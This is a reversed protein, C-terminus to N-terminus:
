AACLCGITHRGDGLYEFRHCVPRRGLAVLRRELPQLPVPSREPHEDPAPPGFSLIAVREVDDVGGGSRRQRADRLRALRVHVGGDRGCALSRFLTTYPFLSPSL